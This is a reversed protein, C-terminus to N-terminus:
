STLKLNSTTSTIPSSGIVEHMHLMRVLWSHLVEMSKFIKVKKLSNTLRKAAIEGNGNFYYFDTSYFRYGIAIFLFM